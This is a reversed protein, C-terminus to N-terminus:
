PSRPHARHDPTTTLERLVTHALERKTDDLDLDDWSRTRDLWRNAWSATTQHIHFILDAAMASYHVRDPFELQNDVWRPMADRLAALIEQENAVTAELHRRLTDIERHQLLFTKVAGESEFSLPSVPEGLWQELAQRGKPTIAYVTRDRAGNSEVTASAFGAEALRRTERYIAAETRPWIESLASRRMYKTLDYASFPRLSLVGLLAYTTTTTRAAM